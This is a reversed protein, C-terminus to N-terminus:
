DNPDLTFFGNDHEGFAHVVPNKGIQSSGLLGKLRNENQIALMVLKETPISKLDRKELEENIRKSLKSVAEIRTRRDVQLTKILDNYFIVRGDEIADRVLVEKNWEILTTKNVNLREAIAAFSKGEIRLRIFEELLEPKKSM